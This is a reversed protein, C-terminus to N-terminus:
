YFFGTSIHKFIEFEVDSIAVELTHALTWFYYGWSKSFECIQEDTGGGEGGGKWRENTGKKKM